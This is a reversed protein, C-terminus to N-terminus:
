CIYDVSYIVIIDNRHKERLFYNRVTRINNDCSNSYKLLNTKILHSQILMFELLYTLFGDARYGEPDVKMKRGYIYNQRM